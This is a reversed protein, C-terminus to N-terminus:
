QSLSMRVGSAMAMKRSIMISPTFRNMSDRVGTGDCQAPAAARNTTIRPKRAEMAMMTLPAAPKKSWAVPTVERMPGRM